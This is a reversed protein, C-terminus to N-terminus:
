EERIEIGESKLKEVAEEYKVSDIGKTAKPFVIDQEKGGGYHITLRPYRYTLLDTSGGEIYKIESYEMRNETRMDKIYPISLGVATALLLGIAGAIVSASLMFYRAIFVSFLLLSVTSILIQGKSKSKIGILNEFMQFSNREFVLEYGTLKWEGNNSTFSKTM